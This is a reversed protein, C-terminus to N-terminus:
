GINLGHRIWDRGEEEDAEPSYRLSTEEKKSTLQRSPNAKLLLM